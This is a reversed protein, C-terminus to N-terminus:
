ATLAAALGGADDSGIYVRKDRGRGDVHRVEIADRGSSSWLTARRALLWERGGFGYYWPLRVQEHTTIDDIAITTTPGLPRFRARLEGDAVETELTALPFRVVAVLLLVAFSTTSWVGVDNVVVLTSTVILGIIAPIALVATPWLSTQRHVYATSSRPTQAM